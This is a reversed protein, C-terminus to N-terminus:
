TPKLFAALHGFAKLFRSSSSRLYAQAFIKIKRNEGTSDETAWVGGRGSAPSCSHQKAPLKLLIVQHKVASLILKVSIHSKHGDFILVVPRETPQSPQVIECVLRSFM